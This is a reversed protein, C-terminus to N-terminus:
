EKRERVQMNVANDGTSAIGDLDGTVSISRPGAASAGSGALSHGPTGEAPRTAYWCGWAAAATAVAVGCAAAIGWRDTHDSVLHPLVVTGAVWATVAFAALTAALAACWRWFGSLTVLRGM